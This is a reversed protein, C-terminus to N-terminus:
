IVCGAGGRPTAVIHRLILGHDRPLAGFRETHIAVAEAPTQEPEVIVRVWVSPGSRVASHKELARLRTLLSHM